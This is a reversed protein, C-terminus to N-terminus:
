EERLTISPELLLSRRAPLYCAVLALLALLVPAGILVVPDSTGTSTVRGVSANMASLMRSGAWAGAMGLATGIAVLVLGERMVLWLVDGKGAGLATRIGIERRRQAVAYATVGALGVSALVLGFIGIVGYTWVAMKLAGMFQDIQEGMSRGQFPTVGSDIRQSEQRVLGLADVGPAARVVLTVGTLVPQAYSSVTMPFYLAPRPKQAVLGEAVNAAVGIVSYSRLGVPRFDFSGPLVKPVNIEASGIDITRAAADGNGWLERALAESVVVRGEAEGKRFSRGSLMAIGTTDFYEPGVTHKVARVAVREAAGATAVSVFGGPMSVPVTETLSASVIGPLTKTRELLRELFAGARERSYGDRIPDFGMLYLNAPNFGTQIGLTSQIGISLLGLVVLLTLSGAIQSVMLLRRAGFRRNNRQWGESGKLAPLVDARSSQLAPALGFLIGTGASLALTLLMVHRDPHFDFAVPMPFPMPVQSMLRMLWVSGLFGLGGGTMALLLSETLLQRVIRTRSAGLALRVAIERRRATARALMMNAVNACAILMILAAVITLVSTFFPVDQKRLPLLKGADVLLLRRGKQGRDLDGNDQAIQQAVADLETEARELPLGPRLRGVVFFMPSDKRELADGALEPALQGGVSVPMWLDAHYLLPSAGLFEEPAVGILTVTQGNVRLTRGIWGSDKGLRDTWFRHSVVISAPQGPKEQEAAFFAGLAPRVGFATFYSPTVLHGWVRESPGNFSLAFPVPAVYAATSSLLETQERFRRFAPFSVPSQIAVLQSPEYVGPLSRLAFGNMESFACTAICMGLSLSLLAVFTFGPSATLSRAGYRVDQRLESFHEVPLRMAVDMLLRALGRMGQRRWISDIADETMEHMEEGYINQFEHPFLAALKRYLRLSITVPQNRANGMSLTGEGCEAKPM